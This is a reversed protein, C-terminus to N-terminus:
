VSPEKMMVSFRNKLLIWENDEPYSAAAKVHAGAAESIVNMNSLCRREKFRMFWGRRAQSKEEKGEKVGGAKM